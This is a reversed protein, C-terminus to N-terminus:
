DWFDPRIHTLFDPCSDDVLSDLDSAFGDPLGFPDNDHRMLFDEIQENRGRLYGRQEAEEILRSITEADPNSETAPTQQTSVESIETTILEQNEM